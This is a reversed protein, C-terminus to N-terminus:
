RISSHRKHGGGGVFTPTYGGASAQRKHYYHSPSPQATVHSGQVSPSAKPPRRSANHSPPALLDHKQYRAHRIDKFSSTHTVNALPLELTPEITISNSRQENRLRELSPKRSLQESTTRSRDPNSQTGLSSGAGQLLPPTKSSPRTTEIIISSKGGSITTNTDVTTHSSTREVM